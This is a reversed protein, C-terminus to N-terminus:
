AWLFASFIFEDKGGKIEYAMVEELLKEIEEIVTKIGDPTIKDYHIGASVVVPVLFVNMCSLQGGTM